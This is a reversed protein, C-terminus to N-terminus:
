KVILRVVIQVVASGLIAGIAAWAASSGRMGAIADELKRIRTFMESHEEHNTSNATQQARACSRCAQLIVRGNAKSDGNLEIGDFCM